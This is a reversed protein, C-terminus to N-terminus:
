CVEELFEGTGYFVEGCVNAVSIKKNVNADNKDAAYHVKLTFWEQYKPFDTRVVIAPLSKFTKMM